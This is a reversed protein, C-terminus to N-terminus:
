SHCCEATRRAIFMKQKAGKIAKANWVIDGSFLLKRGSDTTVLLGVSSPTHGPMPVLIAAGDGFLDRSAEYGRYPPGNLEMEHWRILGSDFQSQMVPESPATQIYARDESHVWIESEPFDIV